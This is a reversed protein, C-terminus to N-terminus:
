GEYQNVLLRDVILRELTERAMECTDLIRRTEEL